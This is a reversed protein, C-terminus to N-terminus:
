SADEPISKESSPKTKSYTRNKVHEHRDLHSMWRKSGVTVVDDSTEMWSKEPYNSQSETPTSKGDVSDKQKKHQLGSLM